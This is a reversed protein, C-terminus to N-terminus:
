ESRATTWMIKLFISSKRGALVEPSLYHRCIRELVCLYLICNYLDVCLFEQLTVQCIHTYMVVYRVLLMIHSFKREVTVAPRCRQYYRRLKSSKIWHIDEIVHKFLIGDSEVKWEWLYTYLMTFRISGNLSLYLFYICM